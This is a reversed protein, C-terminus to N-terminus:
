KKGLWNLIDKEYLNLYNSERVVVTDEFWRIGPFSPSGNMEIFQKPGKFLTYPIHNMNTEEFFSKLDTSDGNLVAYFPIQPNKSHMIDLRRAAKRCYRCTLSLFLLIHKGKRLEVQPPKNGATHYLHSLPVGQRITKDKEYVYISEPPFLVVPLALLLVLLASIMWKSYPFTWFTSWRFQLVMLASLLLNKVISELPTMSVVEGFCGCNGDNGHDIILLILYVTFLILLIQGIPFTLKRINIQALYLVGIFLELGILIRALWEALTWNLFTTEVITWGFQEISPWKSIASFIFTAGILTSLVWGIIRQWKLLNM